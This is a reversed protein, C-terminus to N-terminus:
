TETSSNFLKLRRIEGEIILRTAEKSHMLHEFGTQLAAITPETTCQNEYFQFQQQVHTCGVYGFLTKCKHVAAKLVQIDERDYALQVQQWYPNIDQLFESFVTEAYVTDGDYLEDLFATDLEKNFIFKNPVSGGM